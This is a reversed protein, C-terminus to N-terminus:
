LNLRWQEITRTECGKKHLIDARELAAWERRCLETFCNKGMNFWSLGRGWRSDKKQPLCGFRFQAILPWQVVQLCERRQNLVEQAKLKRTQCLVSDREKSAQGRKEFKTLHTRIVRLVSKQPPRTIPGPQIRGSSSHHKVLSWPAKSFLRGKPFEYIAIKLSDHSAKLEPPFPLKMGGPIQMM